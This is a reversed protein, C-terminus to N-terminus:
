IKLLIFCRLSIWMFVPHGRLARCTLRGAPAGVPANKILCSRFSLFVEQSSSNGLLLSLFSKIIDASGSKPCSTSRGRGLMKVSTVHSM